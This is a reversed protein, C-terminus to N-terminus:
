IFVLFDQTFSLRGPRSPLVLYNQGPYPYGGTRGPPLGTRASSSVGRNTQPLVQLFFWPGSVPTVGRNVSLCGEYCLKGSYKEHPRCCSCRLLLWGLRARPDSLRINSHFWLGRCKESLTKVCTKQNLLPWQYWHKPRRTVDARSKLVLDSEM